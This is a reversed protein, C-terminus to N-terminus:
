FEYAGELVSEKNERARQKKEPSGATKIITDYLDVAEEIRGSFVYVRALLFMADVNKSEKELITELLPEAELIRDLEFIYLISLGYLADVYRPDIELARRYYRQAKNFLVEQDTRDIESKATRATCMGGLYFLIENEPYIKIAKDLTEMALGYMEMEIYKITLMKYYIGLKGYAEVQRDTEQEYRAIAEKLEDVTREPLDRGEYESKTLFKLSELLHDRDKRCSSLVFSSSTLVVIGLIFLIIKKRGSWVM